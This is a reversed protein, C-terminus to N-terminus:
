DVNDHLYTNGGVRIEGEEELSVTWNSMAPQEADPVDELNISKRLYAPQNEMEIVTQPSNLKVVNIPRNLAEQRRRQADEIRRRREEPSIEDEEPQRMFPDNNVPTTRRIKDVTERINEFEFELTSAAKEDVPSYAEDATITFLSPQNKKGAAEDDLHV